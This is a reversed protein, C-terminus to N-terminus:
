ISHEREKSNVGQEDAVLLAPNEECSGERKKDAGSKDEEVDRGM